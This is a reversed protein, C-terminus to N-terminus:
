QGDHNAQCCILVEQSTTHQHDTQQECLRLLVDPAWPCPVTLDGLGIPENQNPGRSM